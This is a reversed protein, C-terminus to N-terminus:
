GPQADALEGRDPRATAQELHRDLWRHYHQGGGENRGFLVHSRAGAQLAEQIRLGTRYDEDEVVHKLFAASRLAAEREEESPEHSVFHLQVTRSRDPTPGPWLQSVMGGSSSCAFSINPFLAHIGGAVADLPWAEEPTAELLPLNDDPTSVRQHPGWFDYSAKRFIDPGFSDKHLFPLHYFDVYGDFALKWNPGVVTNTTVLRWAAFDFWALEEDYGALWADVDMPTGPTICAFVLGAREAVPLPTLGLTAQDVAGFDRKDTIGVLAGERDYTWAHYACRFRSVHGHGEEAVPLGRHACSNVYARAVGDDGRVLLVPVDLAV